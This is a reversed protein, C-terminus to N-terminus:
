KDSTTQEQTSTQNDDSQGDSANASSYDMENNFNPPGMPPNMPRNNNVITKNGAISTSISKVGMLGAAIGFMTLIKDAFALIVSSEPLNFMYFVVMTVFLILCILSTIVGVLITSSTKGDHSMFVEIWSFKSKDFTVM